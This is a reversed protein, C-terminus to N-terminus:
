GGAAVTLVRAASREFLTPDPLLSLVLFAERPFDFFFGPHVLIHERELLGLTLAEESRTSPVQVVAYWGGEAPLLTTAPQKLVLRQLCAYNHRVREAIQTTLESGRDLLDGVAQQVPTSVSLYTDCIVSLRELAADVLEDPGAVITWGVKLQPLGVAKSLGGLVFTLVEAPRDLVSPGRVPSELPYVGFVEDVILALGHQRCLASVEELETATAFSGTPNNPSVILVARTRKTIAALLGELDIAWRGHFELRYPTTQIAELRTLYEFLPYSPRPVAVDQGPDCLLKFLISYAESTGSTLVIRSSEVDLSHRRLYAAVAERACGMGLPEPAYTLSGPGGLAGLLDPPYRLGVRTPNSETLDAVDVGASRLSGQARALRNTTLRKPLRTSFGPM